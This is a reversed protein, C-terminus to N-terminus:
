VCCQPQRNRRRSEVTETQSSVNYMCIHIHMMYICLGSSEHKPGRARTWSSLSGIESGTVILGRDRGLERCAEYVAHPSTVSVNTLNFSMQARNYEPIVWGVGRCEAFRGRKMVSVGELADVSRGFFTLEEGLDM